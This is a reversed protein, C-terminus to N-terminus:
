PLKYKALYEGYLQNYHSDAARLQAEYSHPAYESRRLELISLGINSCHDSVRELDTLIDTYVFSEVMGCEGRKLRDIHRSRLDSRLEDVHQELPEIRLATATDENLFADVALDVVEELAKLLVELERQGVESFRLEKEQLEAGSHVVNRAHDSIREFDNISHLLRTVERSDSYSLKQGSLKVLFGGIKDEYVDIRDELSRVDKVLAADYSRVVSIAERISRRTAEAMENTLEICRAVAVAPTKLFNDDLMAFKQDEPASRVIRGTLWLIQPVFPLQIVTSLAKYCTHLLAIDFANVPTYLGDFGAGELILLPVLGVLAAITNHLMYVWSARQADRNTGAGAVLVILGAGINVGMIIPLANAATIVGTVAAAQVIGVSASSSQLVAAVAFGALIGLIPNDLVTLIRKFSESQSLPAMAGSMSDMGFMLVSFGLLMTGVDRATDRKCFVLLVAGIFALVPVFSDPNLLRLVLSDGSIDNLALLWATATTGINAGFIPGISDRLSMIGSNIFGLLMVTTAGSSQIVATVGAGVLVGMLRNSVLKELVRKMRGGAQRRIAEGLVHMGFLFLGLGGAFSFLSFITM